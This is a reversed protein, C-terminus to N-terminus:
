APVAELARLEMETAAENLADAVARLEAPDTSQISVEGVRVSGIWWTEYPQVRAQPKVNDDPSTVSTIM